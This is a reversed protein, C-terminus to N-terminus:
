VPSTGLSAKQGSGKLRADCGQVGREAVLVEAGVLLEGVGGPLEQGAEVDGRFDPEEAVPM